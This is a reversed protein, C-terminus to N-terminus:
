SNGTNLMYEKGQDAETVQIQKPTAPVETAVTAKPTATPTAGPTCASLFMTVILILSLRRVTQKMKNGKDFKLFFNPFYEKDEYSEMSGLMRNILHIFM